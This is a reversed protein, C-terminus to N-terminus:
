GLRSFNPNSINRKSVRAWGTGFGHYVRALGHFFWPNPPFQLGHKNKKPGEITLNLLQTCRLGGLESCRLNGWMLPFFLGWSFWFGPNWRFVEPRWESGVNEEHISPWPIDIYICIYVYIIVYIYNHVYMYLHWYTWVHVQELHKSKCHKYISYM